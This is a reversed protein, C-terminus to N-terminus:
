LLDRFFFELVLFIGAAFFPCFILCRVIFDFASLWMCMFSGVFVFTDPVLM